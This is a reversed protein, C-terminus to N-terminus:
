GDDVAILTGTWVQSKVTPAVDPRDAPQEAVLICDQITAIDATAPIEVQPWYEVDTIVFPLEGRGISILDAVMDATDDTALGAFRTPDPQDDATLQAHRETHFAEWLELAQEHRTPQPDPPDPPPDVSSPDDTDNTAPPLGDDVGPGPDAAPTCSALVAVTITLMALRLLLTHPPRRCMTAIGRRTPAYASGRDARVAREVKPATTPRAPRVTGWVVTSATPRMAPWEPGHGLARITHHTHNM